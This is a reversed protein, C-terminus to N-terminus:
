LPFHTSSQEIFCASLDTQINDVKLFTRPGICYFSKYVLFFNCAHGLAQLFIAILM